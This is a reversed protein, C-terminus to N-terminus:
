PAAALTRLYQIYDDLAIRKSAASSADSVVEGSGSISSKQRMAAQDANLAQVGAANDAYVVKEQTEPEVRILQKGQVGGFIVLGRGPYERM